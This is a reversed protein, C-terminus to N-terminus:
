LKQDGSSDMLQSVEEELSNQQLMVIGSEVYSLIILWKSIQFQPNEIDQRCGRDLVKLIVM